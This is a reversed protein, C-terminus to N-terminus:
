VPHGDEDTKGKRSLSCRTEIRVRSIAGVSDGQGRGHDGPDDCQGTPFDGAFSVEVGQCCANADEETNGSDISESTTRYGNLLPAAISGHCVPREQDSDATAPASTYSSHLSYVSHV